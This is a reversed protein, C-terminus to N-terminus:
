WHNRKERLKLFVNKECLTNDGLSSKIEDVSLRFFTNFEREQGITSTIFEGDKFDKIRELQAKAKKNSPELNLTFLLNNKMYDHGPYLVVDDHLPFIQDRFTEYLVEPNGGNHCNGVGANFLTDGSILALDRGEKQLLLCLHGMTHGPTYLVKVYTGDITKLIENDKLYRGVGPIKGRAKEHAWVECACAKVLAENGCYHDFHEHTNIIAKIPKGIKKAEAFIKDGNFPDVAYLESEDELLYEFNRLSSFSFFQHVKM